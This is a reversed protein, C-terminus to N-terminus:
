KTDPLHYTSYNRASPLPGQSVGPVKGELEHGQPAQIEPEVDFSIAESGPLQALLRVLQRYMDRTFVTGELRVSREDSVVKLKKQDRLVPHAQIARSLKAALPNSQTDADGPKEDAM